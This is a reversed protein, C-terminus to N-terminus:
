EPVTHAKWRSATLTFTDAVGGTQSCWYAAETALYSMCLTTGSAAMFADGLYAMQASGASVSKILTPTPLSLPQADITIGTGAAGSGALTATIAGAMGDTVDLVYFCDIDLTPTGSLTSAQVYINIYSPYTPMALTGLFIIRPDTTTADIQVAPGVYTPNSTGSTLRAKVTWTAASSNNRVMAWVAVRRCTTLPTIAIWGAATSLLDTPTYRLIYGNSALHAADSVSSYQYGAMGEAEVLMLRNASNAWLLLYQAVNTDTPFTLVAKLPSAVTAASAFTVTAINTRSTTGSPTPTEVAELWLGRRRLSLKVDPIEYCMLLDNFTAPPNVASEGARGLIVCSLAAALTSGQPQCTLLVAAVPEGRSWREAQDLLRSLKALNALCVAGTSGLVDVTIEETVDAYPGGGGLTSVRLTAVSPGWGNAVLAYNTGDVLNATTTGDSITLTTYAAVTM